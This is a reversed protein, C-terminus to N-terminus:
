LGQISVQGHGSNAGATNSQNSGSNYSGAGGGAGDCNGGGGGGGSYGGGGSGGHPSKGCGWVFYDSGGGGGFGGTSDGGNAGNVFATGGTAHGDSGGNGFFGAGGGGNPKGGDWTHGVGGGQGNTGQVGANAKHGTAGSTQTRGGIGAYNWDSSMMGTGGGGGAVILPTDDSNAVFSGGGGGNGVNGPACSGQQGVVIKLQTGKDLSFDGRMIAGKGGNCGGQAGHAEIRYLGTLPVTWYQIGSSVTVKGTLYPQDAYASDCQDQDPGTSGTKGCNTFTANVAASGTCEGDACTLAQDACDEMETMGSGDGNCQLVKEALCFVTDPECLQDKCTASNGQEECYEDDACTKVTFSSLGDGACQKVKDGDCFSSNPECSIAVCEGNVCTEQEGDCSGCSGGCGDDGCEKNDCQPQCGVTCEASCGDGDENNGDDCEEWVAQQGDGCVAADPSTGYCDDLGWDAEGHLTLDYGNSSADTALMGDQEDFHWLNVTHEDDSFRRVPV